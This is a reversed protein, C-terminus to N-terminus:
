NQLEDAGFDIIASILRVAVIRTEGDIDLSAKYTANNDGSDVVLNTNAGLHYEGDEDMFEPDIFKNTGGGGPYVAGPNAPNDVNSYTVSTITASNDLNDIGNSTNGWIICNIINCGTQSVYVGGGTANPGSVDNRFVTESSL